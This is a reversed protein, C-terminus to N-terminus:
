TSQSRELIYLQQTSVRSPLFERASIFETNKNPIHIARAFHSAVHVKSSCVLCKPPCIYQRSGPCSVVVPLSNVQASFSFNAQTLCKKRQFIYHKSIFEMAHHKQSSTSQKLFYCSAKGLCLLQITWPLCILIIGTLQGIHRSSSTWKNNGVTAPSCKRLSKIEFGPLIKGIRM